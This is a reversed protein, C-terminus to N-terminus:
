GSELLNIWLWCLNQCARSSSNGKPAWEVILPVQAREKLGESREMRKPVWQSKIPGLDRKKFEAFRDRNSKRVLVGYVNRGDGGLLEIRLTKKLILVWQLRRM